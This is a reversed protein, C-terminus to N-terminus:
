AQRRRSPFGPGRTESQYWGKYSSTASIAVARLSTSAMATANITRMDRVVIHSVNNMYVGFTRAQQADVTPLAGSGYAGYTIPTGSVGAQNAINFQENWTDGRKLLISDGPKFLSSSSSVKALTRWPAALTGANADSGSSSSVYYTAGVTVVVNQVMVNSAASASKGAADYATALLTVGGDAVKTSDWPFTYPAATLNGVLVGNATLSVRTVGVNDTANVSVSVGGKVTSGPAPLGIAVSPAQTDTSVNSVTVTESATASKGAGDYAIASLTVTGNQSRRRIGASRM